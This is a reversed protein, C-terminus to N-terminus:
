PFSCPPQILLSAARPRLRGERGDTRMRRVPMLNDYGPQFCVNHKWKMRELGINLSMGRPLVEQWCVHPLVSRLVFGQNRCALCDQTQIGVAGGTSGLTRLHLITTLSAGLTKLLDLTCTAPVRSARLLLKSAEGEPDPSGRMENKTRGSTTQMEKGPAKILVLFLLVNLCPIPLSLCLFQPPPLRAGELRALRLAWGWPVHHKWSGVDM